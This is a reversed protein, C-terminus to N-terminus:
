LHSPGAENSSDLQGVQENEFAENNNNKAPAPPEQYLEEREKSRIKYKRNMYAVWAVGLVWVIAGIITLSLNLKMFPEYGPSNRKLDMLKEQSNRFRLLNDVFNNKALILKDNGFRVM